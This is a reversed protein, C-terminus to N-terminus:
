CDKLLLDFINHLLSREATFFRTL